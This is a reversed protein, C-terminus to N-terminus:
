HGIELGWRPQDKVLLQRTQPNTQKSVILRSSAVPPGRKGWSTTFEGGPGPSNNGGKKSKSYVRWIGSDDFVHRSNMKGEKGSEEQEFVCCETM